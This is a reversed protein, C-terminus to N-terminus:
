RQFPQFRISCYSRAKSISYASHPWLRWGFAVVALYMAWAKARGVGQRRLLDYFAKDAVARPVYETAYLADHVTAAPLFEGQWPNGIISWLARPISAGDFRFGREISICALEKSSVAFAVVYPEMLRAKGKHDPQIIPIPNRM